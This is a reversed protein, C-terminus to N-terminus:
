IYVDEDILAVPNNASEVEISVWVLDMTGSMLGGMFSDVYIRAPLDYIM